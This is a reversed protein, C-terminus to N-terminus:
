RLVKANHRPLYVGGSKLCRSLRAAAVSTGSLCQDAGSITMSSHAELGESMRRPEKNTPLTAQGHPLAPHPVLPAREYAAISSSHVPRPANPHLLLCHTQHELPTHAHLSTTSRHRNQNPHSAHPPLSTRALSSRFTRLQNNNVGAVSALSSTNPHTRYRLGSSSGLDATAIRLPTIVIRAM